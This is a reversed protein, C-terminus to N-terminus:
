QRRKSKPPKWDHGLLWTKGQARNAFIVGIVFERWRRGHLCDAAESAGDHPMDALAYTCNIGSHISVEGVKGYKALLGRLDQPTTEDSIFDIRLKSMEEVSEFEDTEANFIKKMRVEKEWEKGLM